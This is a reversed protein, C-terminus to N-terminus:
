DSELPDNVVSSACPSGSLISPDIFVISDSTGGHRLCTKTPNPHFSIKAHWGDRRTERPTVPIRDIHSPRSCPGVKRFLFVQTIGRAKLTRLFRSLVTCYLVTCTYYLISRISLISHLADNSMSPMCQSRRRGDEDGLGIL